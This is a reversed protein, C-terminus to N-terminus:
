CPTGTSSGTSAISTNANRSSRITSPTSRSSTTSNRFTSRTLGLRRAEETMLRAFQAESGAMGEAIAICADNGSQIIIGKLMEDLRERTNVPVFMASTGSPAGGTRWANVSFLYEDDLKIQGTKLARFV